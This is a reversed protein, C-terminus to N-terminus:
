EYLQKSLDMIQKRLWKKHKTNNNKQQLLSQTKQSRTQEVGGNTKTWLEKLKARVNVISEESEGM